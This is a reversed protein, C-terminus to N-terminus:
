RLRTGNLVIAVPSTLQDPDDRPDHRYTVIDASGVVGLFRRPSFSAAALADRPDLGMRALLAVERPISGTVDTGALVPVGLRVALPLLAALREVGEDLRKRREAPLAPGDLMALMAGVTPTWATGRRAMNEIAHEDLGLGHEISDVGSAVLDAANSLTSHVAVRAGARHVEDVLGAIADISYTPAADTGAVLDPFDAIVKVWNAGRGIEGLASQVLDAEAVPTDLLSPYYQGEPALFRGAAQMAPMGPAPKLDLTIGGPSGVDRVMAIGEAAWSSLTAEAARADLAVPGDPGIGAAPHAHADILGALFYRGPLPEADALPLDHVSGSADIWWESAQDGFPLEVGRVAWSHVNDRYGIDRYGVQPFLGCGGRRRHV